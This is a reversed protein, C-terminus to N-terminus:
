PQPDQGTTDESKDGPTPKHPAAWGEETAVRVLDEDDTEITEGKVHEKVDVNRHAWSFTKKVKLIHM